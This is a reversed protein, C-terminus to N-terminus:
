CTFRSMEPMHNLVYDFRNNYRARQLVELTDEFCVETHVSFAAARSTIRSGGLAETESGIRSFRCQSLTGCRITYLSQM